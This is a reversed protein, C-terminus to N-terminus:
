CAGSAAGAAYDCFLSSARRRLIRARRGGGLCPRAAGATLLSYLLCLLYLVYTSYLLYLLYLLYLSYLLYLLYLSYLLYLLHLLYLLYLLHLLYLVTPRRGLVCGRWLTM